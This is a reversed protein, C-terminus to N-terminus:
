VPPINAAIEILIASANKDVCRESREVEAESWSPRVARNLGDGNRPRTIQEANKSDIVSDLTLQAKM